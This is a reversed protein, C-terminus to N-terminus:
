NPQEGARLRRRRPRGRGAAHRRTPPGRLPRTRPLRRRLSAVANAGRYAVRLSLRNDRAPGIPCPPIRVPAPRGVPFALLFLAMLAVLSTIFPLVGLTVHPRLYVIVWVGGEHGRNAADRGVWAATYLVALFYAVATELLLLVAGMALGAAATERVREAPEVAPDPKAPTPAGPAPRDPPAPRAAPAAPPPAQRSVKEADRAAQQAERARGRVVFVAVALIQFLALGAASFAVAWKTTKTV